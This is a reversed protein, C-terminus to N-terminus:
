NALLQFIKVREQESLSTVRRVDDHPQTHSYVYARMFINKRNVFVLFLETSNIASQVDFQFYCSCM